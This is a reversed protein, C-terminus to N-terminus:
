GKRGRVGCGIVRISKLAAMWIVFHVTNPSAPGPCPTGLLRARAAAGLTASLLLAHGGAGTHNRLLTVLLSEMYRDSAHVEDVVLLHRLLAAGRMHAHRVRVAGLLAQDVTGVAIPAALFRKPYEAAWRAKDAGGPADDWEFSFGPLPRGEAEDVLAQGPVAIVVPPPSGGFVRDRFAKVRAFMATAAVRTPLAFYLGDVLGQEFLHKFRWLAAETKGSGTEAELVVCAAGPVAAAAQVPRPQAVDFTAAFGLGAVRQRLAAPASSLGIVEVAHRARQRAMTMRDPGGGDAFPFFGESSDSGLWDALM